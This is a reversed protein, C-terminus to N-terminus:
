ASSVSEILAQCKNCHAVLASTHACWYHALHTCRVRVDANGDCVRDCVCCKTNVTFKDNDDDDSDRRKVSSNITSVPTASIVARARWADFWRSVRTSASSVNWLPLAFLLLDAAHRWVLERNMYDFSASRAVGTRVTALRLRLLRQLVSVYRGDFLFVLFNLLTLVSFVAEGRNMWLWLREKFENSQLSEILNAATRSLTTSSSTSRPPTSTSSLSSFRTRCYEATRRWVYAGGIWIVAYAWLRKNTPTSLVEVGKEFSVSRWHLNELRGGFSAIQPSSINGM